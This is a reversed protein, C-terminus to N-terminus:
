IFNLFTRIFNEESKGSAHDRQEHPQQHASGGGRRGGGGGASGGRQFAPMEPPPAQLETTRGGRDPVQTSIRMLLIGFLISSVKPM